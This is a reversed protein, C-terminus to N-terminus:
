QKAGELDNHIIQLADIARSISERCRPRLLIARAEDTLRADAIDTAISVLNEVAHEVQFEPTQMFRETEAYLESMSTRM